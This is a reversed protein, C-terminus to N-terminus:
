LKEKNSTSYPTELLHYKNIGKLNNIVSNIQSSKRIHRLTQM